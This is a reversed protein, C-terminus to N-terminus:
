YRPKRNLKLSEEIEMWADKVEEQLEKELGKEEIAAIIKDRTACIGLREANHKLKTSQWFGEAILFDVCAGINDIGYNPFISFDCERIKGTIKSKTVKVRVKHGLVRKTKNDKINGLGGLWMEICAYFKLARGGSRTKPIFSMPNINDRTQSLIILLSGTKEMERCVEALIESLIKSKEMKYSGKQKKKNSAEENLRKTNEESSLADLSDLGYIFPTGKKIISWISKRWEQITRSRGDECPPKKLKKNLLGGFINRIGKTPAAEANDYYLDHNKFFPNLVAEAFINHLLFTKGTHSDGIPNIMTGPLFAGEVKGSCALNLLFSGTSLLPKEKKVKEEKDKTHKIQEALKKIRM